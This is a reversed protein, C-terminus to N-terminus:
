ATEEDWGHLYLLLALSINYARVQHDYPRYAAKLPMPRLPEPREAQTKMRSVYAATRGAYRLYSQLRASLAVGAQRLDVAVDPYLPAIMDGGGRMRQVGRVQRVRALEAPTARRTDLAIRAQPAIDAAIM